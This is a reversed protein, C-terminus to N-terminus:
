AELTILSSPEQLPEGETPVFTFDSLPPFAERINGTLFSLFDQLLGADPVVQDIWLFQGTENVELFQGAGKKEVM